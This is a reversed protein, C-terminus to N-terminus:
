VKRLVPRHDREFESAEDLMEELSMGVFLNDRRWETYDFDDDKIATIFIETEIIGLKDRLCKMGANMIAETAANNMQLGGEM